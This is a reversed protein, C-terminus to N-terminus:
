KLKKIITQLLKNDADIAIFANDYFIMNKEYKKFDSKSIRNNPNVIYKDVIISTSRAEITRPPKIGFVITEVIDGVSIKYVKKNKPYKIIQHFGNYGKGYSVFYTKGVFGTIVGLVKDGQSLIGPSFNIPNLKIRKKM